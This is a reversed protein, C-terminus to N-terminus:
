ITTKILKYGDVITAMKWFQIHPNHAALQRAGKEVLPDVNHGLCVEKIYNKDFTKIGHSKTIIRKGNEYCWCSDKYFFLKQFLADIDETAHNFIPVAGIYRVADFRHFDSVSNVFDDDFGICFGKHSESYHSWMLISNAVPSLCVVGLIEMAEKRLDRAVNQSVKNKVVLWEEFSIKPNESTEYTKQLIDLSGETKISVKFESPDNFSSPKSASITGNNIFRELNNLVDEANNSGTYKYLM